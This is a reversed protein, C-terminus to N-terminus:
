DTLFDKLKRSRSPHRLKRLAKAEIQRIRERTVGFIQGVEELTRCQGDDLGFRLRLVKEERETLTALVGSLEEKLMEVTAYEEPGMTREDKIFDGLHSDDEEGIPTELSVPDQSIKYVERVKEISIGLKKAIEEDTPERNLEQTLQRQVRALKNITEVMHVPVRITRAQDAIARTIAQRIWWTAYTSFKYGKTPDFKDVAKMLGINGEQILDLFLMGRGVYRKAISVVLRLNSEALMRKAEEDGEEARKAYEFEEDSTLLNIRGIEKLYMRVTDNIKVDKSLTLNEVSMDQTIEEGSADDSGDESVIDIDAEVLFNYLEDLTDSDVELGKLQDALQEYTVFGQKKGLALLKSKREDLTKIEEVM